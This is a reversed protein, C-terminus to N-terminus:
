RNIVQNKLETYTSLPQIQLDFVQPNEGVIAAAFFRPVYKYGYQAFYESCQDPHTAISWYSRERIGNSLLTHLCKRVTEAGINYSAIALAVSASDSGFESTLEDMYRAAAQSIKQPDCRENLAVGYRRTTGPSFGFLGEGGFQNAACPHYESEIMAIYLGIVPPVHRKNFAQTIFPVYISARSYVPRLGEEFIETSLSDRRAAYGDVQDRIHVLVAGDLRPPNPGLMASIHAAQEDIFRIQEDQTMQWYVKHLRNQVADNEAKSILPQTAVRSQLLYKYLGFAIIPVILLVLGLMLWKISAKTTGETTAVAAIQDNQNCSPASLIGDAG